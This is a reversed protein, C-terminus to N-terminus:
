FRFTTQVLLGLGNLVGGGPSFLGGHRSPTLLGRPQQLWILAPTISLHDSLRTHLFLEMALGDDDGGLYRGQPSLAAPARRALLSADARTVFPAQGVGVSLTTNPWPVKPWALQASWSVSEAQAAPQRGFPGSQAPYTFRNFGGGVLVAPWWRSGTPQWHLTLGYADSWGRQGSAHAPNLQLQLQTGGVLTGQGNRTYLGTLGWGRGLYGLQLSTSSAQPPRELADPRDSPLPSDSQVYAVGAVLGPQGKPRQRWSLGGGWGTTLSYAGVAGNFQFLTLIRDPAQSSPFLPLLDGQDLRAGATVSLTPSLPLRYYARQISVRGDPQGGFSTSLTSLLTPPKGWPGEQFNTGRLQVRLLDDGRFSTDLNLRVDFNFTAAEPLAPLPGEGGWAQRGAGEYRLGGLVSRQVVKLRTVPGVPAPALLAPSPAAVAAESVGVGWPPQM